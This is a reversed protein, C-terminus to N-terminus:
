EDANRRNWRKIVEEKTNGYVSISVDIQPKAKEDFDCVHHVFWAGQKELYLLGYTPDDKDIRKGCFPCPKMKSM